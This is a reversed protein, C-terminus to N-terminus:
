VARLRRALTPSLWSAKARAPRCRGVADVVEPVVGFFPLSGSGPKFPTAGPLPTIMIGGTETQWWTDVIPCRKQRDRRSVM